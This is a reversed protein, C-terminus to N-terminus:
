LLMVRIHTEDLRAMVRFGTPGASHSAIGKEKPRCWGNVRCSGDDVAVLKGVLGVPDWEPRLTRPSYPQGPDYDPNLKQRRGAPLPKRTKEPNEPDPAETAEELTEGEEWLPRGFVDTLYMGRWQDDYVDGVVSPNGSVIGLIYDDGPEALRIKEGELTVFRGARDEGEPNGDEWQFLEAYDAGSANYSGSAYTGTDTVRFCNARTEPVRNDGKGIIFRDTEQSSELNLQGIATQYNAIAVTGYGGAHSAYGGATTLCGEAHSAVGSALNSVQKGLTENLVQIVGGEAHAARGTAANASGEAHSEDESALTRFGEAHSAMGSAVSGSGEAHSEMGSALTNWGEAHAAQASATSSIGEAHAAYASATSGMCELEAGGEAHASGASALTRYGEAHSNDGTATAAEGEAHACKGSAVNGSLPLVEGSDGETGFTRSGYSNFIEAGAQGTEMVGQSVEVMEGALSKGVGGPNGDRIKGLLEDIEEGTFRGLYPAFEPTNETDPM